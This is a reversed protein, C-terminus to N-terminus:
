GGLLSVNNFEQFNLTMLSEMDEAHTTELGGLV